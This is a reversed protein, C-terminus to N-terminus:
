ACTILQNSLPTMSNITPTVSNMSPPLFDVHSIKQHKTLRSKERFSKGCKNCTHPMMNDHTREHAYLESTRVFAKNCNPYTCINVRDKKHVRLHVNLDARTTYSKPCGVETCKYRPRNADHTREHKKRNSSDTFRKGCGPFTCPYKRRHQISDEEEIAEMEQQKSLYPTQGIHTTLSLHKTLQKLTHFVENCGNWHCQVSIRQRKGETPNGLHCLLHATSCHTALGSRTSFSENCNEWHCVFMKRVPDKDLHIHSELETFLLFPHQTEPKPKPLLLLDQQQPKPIEKSYIMPAFSLFHKSLIEVTSDCDLHTFMRPLTSPFNPQWSSSM